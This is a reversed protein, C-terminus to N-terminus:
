RGLGIERGWHWNEVLKLGKQKIERAAHPGIFYGRKDAKRFDKKVWSEIELYRLRFDDSQANKRGTQPTIDLEAWMQGSMLRGEEDRKSREWFIVPSNVEDVRWFGKDKGRKYKDVIAPGIDSAVLYLEEEPFQPFTKLNARFTEWEPPIRRPYVEFFYKELRRVFAVEDDPNMFLYLQSAM